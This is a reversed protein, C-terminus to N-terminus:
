KKIAFSKFFDKGPSGLGTATDYGRDASLGFDAGIKYLRVRLTNNVVGLDVVNGRKTHVADDNVDHFAKSGARDYLAPNAFGLARGGRSQIANAFMAATEPASVSTGGYGGESYTGGDTFGVLTAAVLDGSMAIDPTARLPTASKTGDAATKSIRDPVVGQQYWPQAFDKSVGGGGGFYFTGPFPSWSKQDASLVSRLDGMSVEAGYKGAKDDLQLATGGVSTVWPSASPWDAQAQNTDKQCNAGTAAAGPSSDGCDGSSFTFGIGTVAGLQFIQNDAAVVAPDIDGGTGHMIEGWSNSVIDALHGDVVKAMADYLDEDYCSNGGVYVVQADPALGHVMEVDLAEEGAWGAPGGCEDQHTWKDPTVYETYQGPKFPQDGHLSSYHNADQEMTSLGYADIIAVRAGKGSVKADTVGYAKRLQSPVYSCPAFPENKEYGVPAGKATKSGYGDESCTPVDPLTAPAKKDPAALRSAANARQEAERVSTATSSNKHIADALGSVALVSGAVAAPVKADTTPARHTGDATRYNHFGTGFAKAMAATSGAVQVYHNTSASVTLGAGTVWDTVAKVQEPGAGFKAQVQDSTLYQGYSGSNPDSVAKALAALGSADRGALYIRATAPAAADAAGADAQPTAWEPHTGPLAQAGDGAPTAASAPAVAGLTALILAAAVTAPAISKALKNRAIPM